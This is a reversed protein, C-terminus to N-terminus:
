QGGAVADLIDIRAGNRYAIVFAGKIGRGLAAEKFERAQQYSAFSGATYKYLGNHSEVKVPRSLNYSGYASSVDTFKRMAALQVRFYLGDQVALLQSAPIGTSGGSPTATRTEKVETEERAPPPPPPPTTEDRQSLVEELPPAEGSEIAAM